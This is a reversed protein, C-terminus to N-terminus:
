SCTTQIPIDSAIRSAEKTRLRRIRMGREAVSAIDVLKVFNRIERGNKFREAKSEEDPILNLGFRALEICRSSYQDLTMAGQVMNQFKIARMQRQARPFFRGNFEEVFRDWPIVVGRGLEIGVLGKKSKWWRASEDTIRLGTYRVKHEDTCGLTEHLLQIDTIWAEAVLPGQTGDFLRFQQGAFDRLSCGVQELRGALQPIRAVVEAFQRTTEAMFQALAPNVGDNFPPPPPPFEDDHNGHRHNGYNENRVPYRRPAMIIYWRMLNIILIFILKFVVCYM